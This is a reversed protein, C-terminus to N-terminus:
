GTISTAAALAAHWEASMPAGNYHAMGPVGATWHLIKADPNEGHEDVLWNWEIPLSGIVTDELFRLQLLHLPDASEVYEPTIKRWAFHNCDMLMVSAWQKRAAQGAQRLEM